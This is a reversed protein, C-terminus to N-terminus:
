EESKVQSASESSFRQYSSPTMGVIRKFAAIFNAHSSYGVSQGIAQITLHGYAETDALRISALRVRYENLLSKFTKQYTANIVWSVYKSNSGVLTCLRALDFSPDSITEEQCMVAIIAEVLQQRMEDSLLPAQSSENEESSHRNKADKAVMADTIAAKNREVLVQYAEQLSKKQRRLIVAMIIVMLLLIAFVGIVAYQQTIRSNLLSIEERKQEEEFANLRGKANNFLQTNFVSDDLQVSLNQYRIAAITDGMSRYCKSLHSYARSMGPADSVTKALCLMEEYLGLASGYDGLIEYCGAIEGVEAAEYGEGMNHSAAFDRAQQHYYLAQHVEGALSAVKGQNALFFYRHRVVNKQVTKSQLDLYHRAQKIDGLMCSTMTLNSVAKASMDTDGMECASEYCLLFYHHAKDYDKFIGYIKAILDLSKLYTANNKERKAQQQAKTTYDLAEVLQDGSFCQMALTMLSDASVDGRRAHLSLCVVLTIGLLWFRHLVNCIM